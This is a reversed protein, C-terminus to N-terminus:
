YCKVVRSSIVKQILKNESRAWEVDQSDIYEVSVYNQIPSGNLGMARKVPNDALVGTVKARVIPKIDKRMSLTFCVTDGVKLETGFKDTVTNFHNVIDEMSKAKFVEIPKRPKSMWGHVGSNWLECKFCTKLQYVLLCRNQLAGGDTSWM